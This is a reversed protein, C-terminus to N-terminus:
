GPCCNHMGSPTHRGCMSPSTEDRLSVRLERLLHHARTDHSLYRLQPFFKDQGSGIWVHNAIASYADGHYVWLASPTTTHDCAPVTASISPEDAYAPRAPLVQHLNGASQGNGPRRRPLAGDSSLRSQSDDRSTSSRLETKRQATNEACNNRRDDPAEFVNISMYFRMKFLRAPCHSIGSYDAVPTGLMRYASSLCCRLMLQLGQRTTWHIRSLSPCRKPSGVV